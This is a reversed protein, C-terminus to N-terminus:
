GLPILRYNEDAASAPAPADAPKEGSFRLVVDAPLEVVARGQLLEPALILAFPPQHSM